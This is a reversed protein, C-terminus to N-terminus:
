LGTHGSAPTVSVQGYPRGGRQLRGDREDVECKAVLRKAAHRAGDNNATGDHKGIPEPMLMVALPWVEGVASAPRAAVRPTSMRRLVPYPLVM